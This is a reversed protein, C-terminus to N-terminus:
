EQEDIVRDFVLKIPKPRSSRKEVVVLEDGRRNLKISQTTKIVTEGQSIQVTEEKSLELERDPEAWSGSFVRNTGSKLLVGMFWNEPWVPSVVPLKVPEGGPVFSVSDAAEVRNRSKWLHTISVVEGKKEIKIELQRNRVMVVDTGKKPNHKWVGYITKSKDTCSLSFVLSVALATQIILLLKKM